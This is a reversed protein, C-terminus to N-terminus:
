DQGCVPTQNMLLTLLSPHVGCCGAMCEKVYEAPNTTTSIGDLKIVKFPVSGDRVREVSSEVHIHVIVVVDNVGFEHHARCVDCCPLDEELGDWDQNTL